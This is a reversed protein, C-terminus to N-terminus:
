PKRTAQDVRSMWRSVNTTSKLIRAGDPTGGICFLQAFVSLDAISISNGVLWDSEGLLAALADVHRQVDDLVRARSKRGIGQARVTRGVLTPVLSRSLARLPAIEERALIPVWKDANDSWTFRMTAEYFYLSEDAWDELLHAFAADRPGVPIVRPEPWVRELYKVIDTSDAVVEGDHELVPLKAAPNLRRLRLLTQSPPIERVEYAVRKLHLVRRVKDCFPSIEFQHLVVM